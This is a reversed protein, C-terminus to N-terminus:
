KRFDYGCQAFYDGQKEYIRTINFKNAVKNEYIASMNYQSTEENEYITAM